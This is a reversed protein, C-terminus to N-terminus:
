DRYTAKTRGWSGPDAVTPDNRLWLFAIPGHSYACSEVTLVPRTKTGTCTISGAPDAYPGIDVYQLGSVTIELEVSKWPYELDARTACELWLYLLFDGVPVTAFRDGPVHESSSLSWQYCGSAQGDTYPCGCGESRCGPPDHSYGYGDSPWATGACDTTMPVGGPGPGSICVLDAARAATGPLASVALLLLAVPALDRATSPRGTIGAM